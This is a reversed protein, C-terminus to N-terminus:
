IGMGSYVQRHPPRAGLRDPDDASGTGTTLITLYKQNHTTRAVM